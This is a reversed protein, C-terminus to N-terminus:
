RLHKRHEQYAERLLDAFPKSRLEIDVLDQEFAQREASSRLDFKALIREAALTADRTPQGEPTFALVQFNTGRVLFQLYRQALKSLKAATTADREATEAAEIAALRASQEAAPLCARIVDWRLRASEEPLPNCRRGRACDDIATNLATFASLAINPDDGQLAVCLSEARTQLPLGCVGELPHAFYRWAGPHEAMAQCALAVVTQQAAASDGCHAGLQKLEQLIAARAAVTAAFVETVLGDV